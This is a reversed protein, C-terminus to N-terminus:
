RPRYTADATATSTATANTTVVRTRPSVILEDIVFDVAACYSPTDATTVAPSEPRSASASVAATDAVGPTVSTARSVVPATRTVPVSPGGAYPVAVDIAVSPARRQCRSDCPRIGAAPSTATPDDDLWTTPSTSVSDPASSAAVGTVTVTTPM